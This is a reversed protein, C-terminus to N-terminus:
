MINNLQNYKAVAANLADIAAQVEPIQAALAFVDAISRAVPKRGPDDEWPSTTQGTAPPLVRCAIYTIVGNCHLNGATDISTSIQVNYRLNNYPIDPNGVTRATITSLPM